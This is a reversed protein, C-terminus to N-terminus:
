KVVKFTLEDSYPIADEYALATVRHIGAPYDAANITIVSGTEAQEKGDVFWRVPAATVTILLADKQSRSLDSDSDPSLDIKEYAPSTFNIELPSRGKIQVLATYERVSGDDATVRYTVPNAFDQAAGSAPNLSNGIFLVVPELATIDTGYPVTVTITHEHLLGAADGIVFSTIEKADSLNGNGNGSCSAFVIGSLLVIPMLMKVPFTRDKMM